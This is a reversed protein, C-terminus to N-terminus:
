LGLGSSVELDFVDGIQDGLSSQEAQRQSVYQDLSGTIEGWLTHAEYRALRVKNWPHALGLTVILLLLNLLYIGWLALFSTNAQFHLVTDLQTSNYTYNRIKARVFALLFLGVLLSLLYIPIIFVSLLMLLTILMGGVVEESSFDFDSVTLGMFGFVIGLVVLGILFAILFAQIYVWYFYRSQITTSFVGQGYLSANIFFAAFLKQMYPIVLYLGIFLIVFMLGVILKGIETSFYPVTQTMNFVGFGIVGLVLAFLVPVLIMIYYARGVKGKFDFRVNRYSSMRANFRLGSVIAWPSLLFIVVLLLSGIDPAFQTTLVVILGLVLAVIRGKLIQMPTAHYEFSAKDFLTNGYFYRKTRVTAWASYIGLTIISLLINVIWIKFYETGTGTFQFPITQEMAGAQISTDPQTVPAKDLSLPIDTMYHPRDNVGTCNLASDPRHKVWRVSFTVYFKIFPICAENLYKACKLQM